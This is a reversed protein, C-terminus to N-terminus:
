VYFSFMFIVFHAHNISRAECVNIENDNSVILQLENVKRWVRGVAGSM